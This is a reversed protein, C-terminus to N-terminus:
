DYSRKIKKLCCLLLFVKIIFQTDAPTDNIPYNRGTGKKVERLRLLSKRDM